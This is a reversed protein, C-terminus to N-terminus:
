QAKFALYYFTSDRTTPNASLFHRLALKDATLEIVDHPIAENIVSIFNLIKYDNIFEWKGQTRTQSASSDCKTAGEDSKRRYDTQFIYIDDKLCAKSAAFTNSLITDRGLFVRKLRNKLTAFFLAHSNSM